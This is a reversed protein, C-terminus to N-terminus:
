SPPLDSCSVKLGPFGVLTPCRQELSRSQSSVSLIQGRLLILSKSGHLLPFFLPYFVFSRLCDVNDFKIIIFQQAFTIILFLFKLKRNMYFYIDLSDFSYFVTQFHFIQINM